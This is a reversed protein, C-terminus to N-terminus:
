MRSRRRLALAAALLGLAVLAVSQPEPVAVAPQLIPDGFAFVVSNVEPTFALGTLHFTFTVPGVLLPNAGPDSLGSATYNANVIGYPQYAFSGGTYGAGLLFAGDAFTSGWGYPSSGSGAPCPNAGGTCNIVSAASASDLAMTAPANSLSFSLGTLVSELSGTPQVNDTLTIAFSNMNATDFSFVATAQQSVSDTVGDATFTYSIIAASAVSSAIMLGAAVTVLKVQKVVTVGTQLAHHGLLLLRRELVHL